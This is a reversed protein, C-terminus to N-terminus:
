NYHEAWEANPDRLAQEISDPRTWVSEGASLLCKYSMWKERVCNNRALRGTGKHTWYSRGHEPSYNEVWSQLDNSGSARVTLKRKPQEVEYSGGNDKAAPNNTQIGTITAPDPEKLVKKGLVLRVAQVFGKSKNTQTMAVLDVSYESGKLIYTLSTQGAGSAATLDTQRIEDFERWKGLILALCPRHEQYQWTPTEEKEPEQESEPKPEPACSFKALIKEAAPPRSM